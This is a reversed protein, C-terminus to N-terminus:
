FGRQPTGQALQLANIFQALAYELHAGADVAVWGDSTLHRWEFHLHPGTSNGTSGVRGIVTGQEVVEGTQVFIESLHAYRSEQTGQEHRLIVTLGYGGLFDATAVEGSAAAIVPTGQPAGLDTGAHFRYDGSIPHLRWGFLSTISAPITLPFMFSSKGISPRGVPRNTLNYYALGTPTTGGTASSGGSYSSYAKQRTSHVGSASVRLPGVRVSQIGRVPPAPLRTVGNLQPEQLTVLSALAQRATQQDPKQLGPTQQGAIQQRPTIGGCAGSSLQGNQAVASCGTSRETLVVSNPANYRQTAGISYDTRDIYSNSPDVPTNATEQTPISNFIVRPPKAVASSDPISLNPAALVPKQPLRAPAPRSIQPRPAPIVPKRVVPAPAPAPKRVPVDPVIVTEPAAPKPKFAPAPAQVPAAVERPRSRVPPPAENVHVAPPAEVAAPPAAVPDSSTETQAVVLGSSLLGLSSVLSLGQILRPCRYFISLPTYGSSTGKTM